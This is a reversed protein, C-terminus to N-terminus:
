RQLAVRLDETPCRTAAIGSSSSHGREHAFTDALEPTVNAVLRDAQEFSGRPEDVFRVQIGDWRRGYEIGEDDSILSELDGAGPAPQHNAPGGNPSTIGAREDRNADTAEAALDATSLDLSGNRDM